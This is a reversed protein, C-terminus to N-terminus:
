LIDAIRPWTDVLDESDRLRGARQPRASKMVRGPVVYLDYAPRSSALVKGERDHIVGRTTALRVRQIINEHAAAAYSSGELVQLQFLRCFVAAFALFAALALWKFRRRFEGVDARPLLLDTV